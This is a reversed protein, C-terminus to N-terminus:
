KKIMMSLKYNDKYILGDGAIKSLENMDSIPKEIRGHQAYIRVLNPYVVMQTVDSKIMM